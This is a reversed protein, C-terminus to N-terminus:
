RRAMAPHQAISHEQDYEPNVQTVYKEGTTPDTVEYSNRYRFKTNTKPDYGTLTGDGLSGKGSLTANHFNWIKKRQEEPLKDWEEPTYGMAKTMEAWVKDQMADFEEDNQAKDEMKDLADLEEDSLSSFDDEQLAKVAKKALRRAKEEKVISLACTDQGALSATSAHM